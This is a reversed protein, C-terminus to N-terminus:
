GAQVAATPDEPLLARVFDLGTLIGRVHHHEIALVRRARTAVAFGAARFLPTDMPLCVMSQTMAEEVASTLPQQRSELAEEQTFLGIARGVDLVVVGAVGAQSLKDVAAGLQETGDVSIVPSSMYSSIPASIRAQLVARMADKTSFVGVLKEGDRVFVRHVHKDIMHRAAEALPADQDVAQVTHTMVDGVCMAPLELLAGSGVLRRRVQAVKLLDTRSVVGAPGDRGTVLLCSIGHTRMLESATALPADVEVDLIPSSMFASVARSVM